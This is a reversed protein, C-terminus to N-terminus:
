ISSSSAMNMSSRQELQECKHWGKYSFFFFFFPFYSLIFSLLFPCISSRVFLHFYLSYYVYVKTLKDPKPLRLCM